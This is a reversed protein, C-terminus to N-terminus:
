EDIEGSLYALAHQVESLVVDRDDGSLSLHGAIQGVDAAIPYHYFKLAPTRAMLHLYPRYMDRKIGQRFRGVITQACNQTTAGLPLDFLARIHQEFQSTLAGELTWLGSVGPGMEIGRVVIDDGQVDFYVSMVGVLHLAAARELARVQALASMHESHFTAPTITAYIGASEYVIETPPWTAAQNHPSRAVVVSFQPQHSQEFSKLERLTRVSPYFRTGSVQEAISQTAVNSDCWIVTCRKAFEQIEIRQLHSTPALILTKIGLPAAAAEMMSIFPGSGVIGLTPFTM